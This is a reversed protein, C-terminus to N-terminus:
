RSICSTSIVLSFYFLFSVDLKVKQGQGQGRMGRGRRLGDPDNGNREDFDDDGGDDDSPMSFDSNYDSVNDQWTGDEARPAM